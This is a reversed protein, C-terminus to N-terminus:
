VGRTLLKACSLAPLRLLMRSGMPWMALRLWLAWPWSLPMVKSALTPAPLRAVRRSPTGPWIADLSRLISRSYLLAPSRLRRLSARAWLTVRPLSPRPRRLRM